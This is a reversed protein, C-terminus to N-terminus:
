QVNKGDTYSRNIDYRSVELRWVRLGMQRDGVKVSPCSSSPVGSPIETYTKRQRRSSSKQRRSTSRSATYTITSGSSSEQSSWLPTITHSPFSFSSLTMNSRASSSQSTRKSSLSTLRTCELSRLLDKGPM